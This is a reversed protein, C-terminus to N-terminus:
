EKEKQANNNQGRSPQVPQYNTLTKITNEVMNVRDILDETGEQISKVYQDLKNGDEPKIRAFNHFLQNRAKGISKLLPVINAKDPFEYTELRNIYDYMALPRPSKEDDSKLYIIAGFQAYSAIEIAYKVSSLLHEALYEAFSAYIVLSALQKDFANSNWMGRALELLDNKM